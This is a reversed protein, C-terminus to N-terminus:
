RRIRTHNRNVVNLTHATSVAVGSEIYGGSGGHGGSGGNGTDTDDVDQNGGDKNEIEGGDGGEGGESGKAANYGTKASAGTYNYVKGYNRNKVKTDGNDDGGDCGCRNVRTTNKNVVNVTSASAYADGTLVIGGQGGNGGNGGNGTSSDDVEQDDGDKNEIDGGNGGNGGTSGGAYNGGTSAGSSTTNVVKGYNYNKVTDDNDVPKPCRVKTVSVADLFTGLSDAEGRDEFAVTDLGTGTVEYTHVTWDTNNNGTGDASLEDVEGGNWLVGLINNDADTGPRPSFAFSLEYTCSNHTEVEQSIRVSAKEGNINGGPGDWDSDLETYQEGDYSQWGNVGRHLEMMPDNNGGSGNMWEVDWNEVPGVYIDWNANDNVTPAEFDGNQVQAFAMQAGAFLLAFTFLLSFSIHITKTM